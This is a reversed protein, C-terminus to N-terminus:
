FIIWKMYVMIGLRLTNIGDDYVSGYDAAVASGVTFPKKSPQWEMQILSSLQKRHPVFSDEGDNTYNGFNSVYSFMMKWTFDAPIKGTAGMHVGKFRTSIFGMSVGNEIREPEFFPSVMGHQFYSAGSQYIGHNFYNDRGHGVRTGDPQLVQHFAGSQDTTQYYEITIGKLIADSAKSMIFLGYLNDSINELEMGSHDDFPHSMYYSITYNSWEKKLQLQYVGYQNGLVNLQDTVLANDGGSKGLVYDFYSEWGPLKGYVPHTGGWMVFHEIGLTFTLTEPTGFRSYFAKRHLHTNIVYREDNLLGEEYFGYVSFWKFFLPVFRNFGARIKPHPRANRSSALNGNTASLGLYNEQDAFAGGNIELFKWHMGGYLETYRVPNKSHILVDFSGGLSVGLDSNDWNHIYRGDLGFGLIAPDERDYRGLQNAWLWFPLQDGSGALASFRAELTQASTHQVLALLIITLLKRM